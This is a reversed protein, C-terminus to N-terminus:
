EAGRMWKNILPSILFMFVAVGVAVYAVNTYVEIYGAKTDAMNALQGGLTEVGTARAIVGALFNSLGSYLFWAGMTMGVVRVPALKIVASLGVPSRM